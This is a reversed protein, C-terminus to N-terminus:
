AKTLNLRYIRSATQSFLSTKESVSYGRLIYKYANWVPVFGASRGDPPFNSELMCRNPGFAEIGTEVFPQWAKALELYTVEDMRNEFGFGWNPMGLGGIKCVVNPREALMKLDASWRKFVEAKEDANMDVGIAIGLHNLVFTLNPFQDVLETIRPLGPDFVAVDFTLGRKDLEALALPFGETELIGSPPKYTMIYKFPRDDPYDLTVHRVGRFRNPAISLSADLLEGIKSGFTMNAHGIIGACVQCDGYHGSATMAGVGNAFEVEGLPRMWEPGDKRKFSQTECYISAIINHGADVDDLYEDILYRNNPLDFLHHHSDVIPIDPDLIKEDRGELRKTDKV